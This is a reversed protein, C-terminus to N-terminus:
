SEDPVLPKGNRVGGRFGSRVSEENCMDCIIRTAKCSAAMQVAAAATHSPTLNSTNAVMKRIPKAHKKTEVHRDCVWRILAEM